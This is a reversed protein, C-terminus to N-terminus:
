GNVWWKQHVAYIWADIELLIVCIILLLAIVWTRADKLMMIITLGAINLVSYTSILSYKEQQIKHRFEHHWVLSGKECNMIQGTQTNYCATFLERLFGM